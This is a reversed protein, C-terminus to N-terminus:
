LEVTREARHGRGVVASIQYVRLTLESPMSGWDSVIDADEYTVSNASAPLTRKVTSGDMVDVEYSTTSEGSPASADFMAWPNVRNRGDWTIDVDSGDVVAAINVPAFPTEAVGDHTYHGVPVGIGVQGNLVTRFYELEGLQDTAETLRRVWDRSVLVFYDGIEHQDQYVETGRWGRYTFNSITITGDDNATVTEFGVGEWRGPQGVFALNSGWIVDAESASVLQDASGSHVVIRLSSEDDRMFTAPPAPLADLSAAVLGVSTQWYAQILATPSGGLYLNAGSWSGGLAPAVVHYEVLASGGADDSPSLLPIDMQVYQVSFVSPPVVVQNPSNTVTSVSVTVDSSINFAEISVAADDGFGLNTIQVTYVQDDVQVDLTDGPLFHAYDPVVELSFNRGSTVIQHLRQVVLEKMTADYNVIPANLELARISSTVDFYAKPRSADVHGTDWGGDKSVYTFDLKTPTQLDARDQVTVSGSSDRQVLQEPEVSGDVSISGNKNIKKFFYGTGTEVFSFDYFDALSGLIDRTTSDGAITYGVLTMEDTFGEFTLDDETLGALSCVLTIAAQLTLEQAQLKATSVKTWGAIYDGPSDPDEVGDDYFWCGRAQDYIEEYVDSSENEAWVSLTFQSLDVDYVHYSGDTNPLLVHGPSAFMRLSEGFTGINQLLREPSSITSVTAGTKPNIVRVRYDFGDSTGAVLYGTQPDYAVSDVVESGSTEWVTQVAVDTGGYWILEVISKSQNYSDGDAWYAAFFSVSDPRRRGSCAKSWYDIAVPNDIITVTGAFVDIVSLASNGQPDSWVGEYAGFTLYAGSQVNTADISCLMWQVIDEFYGSHDTRTVDRGTKTDALYVAYKGDTNSYASFAVLSTGPLATFNYAAEGAESQWVARRIEEGTDASLTTITASPDDSLYYNSERYLQYILGLQQDYGAQTYDFFTYAHPAFNGIFTRADEPVDVSMSIVARVQPPSDYEAKPLVLLIDGYNAGPNDKVYKTVVPDPLTQRGDYFRFGVQSTSGTEADYVVVDDIELRVLDYQVFFPNTALLYVIQFYSYVQETYTQQPDTAVGSTTGLSSLLSGASYAYYVM